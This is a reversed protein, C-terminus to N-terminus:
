APQSSFLGVEDTVPEAARSPERLKSPLEVNWKRMWLLLTVLGWLHYGLNARKSQHDDILKEVVPWNFLGTRTIAKQSLTDLLLPRLISRFWHHIPIDFGIKPRQLVSQPLKDSMLRRLVYKSEAGRLKFDDPLSNAFAVIRPDLFPPRVEISHAMSIRDVKYLIDDPLYYRQDFNLYRQLGSGDKVSEVIAALPNPDAFRFLM